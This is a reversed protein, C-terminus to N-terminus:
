SEVTIDGGMARAHDRSIALGLGVGEGPRSLKRDVQVFPDFVVPLKDAPIGIGTDRVHIRVWPGSAACSVTVRGGPTTFKVANTLLNLLVQQMRERDARAALAADCPEYRYALRQAALQPAVLTEMDALAAGVPVDSLDLEVRGAELKAFHLIDNILGLLHSGSRKIRGLDERQAETVPGRIGLSLLDAYGTVANLPTRLEHSMTALFASKAANAAEAAERAEDARAREADAEARAARERELLLIRDTADWVVGLVRVAEGEPGLTLRARGELWRVEGDARVFRYRIELRERRGAV